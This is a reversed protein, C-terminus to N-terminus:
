GTVPSTGRPRIVTESRRYRPQIFWRALADADLREVHWEGGKNTGHWCCDEGSVIIHFGPRLQVFVNGRHKLWLKIGYWVCM